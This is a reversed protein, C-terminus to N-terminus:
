LRVLWSEPSDKCLRAERLKGNPGIGFSEVKLVSGVRCRDFKSGFLPLWGVDRTVEACQGLAERTVGPLLGIRVSQKGGQHKELVVAYFVEMRKAKWRPAGWPADLLSAVVGEGGKAIIAELFEGGVGTACRLLSLAGTISDLVRLSERRPWGRLDEGNAELCDIAYFRGDSMLEGWLGATYGHGAVERVHTVGDMKEEYRHTGNGRWRLAEALPVPIFGPREITTEM